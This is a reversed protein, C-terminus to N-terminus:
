KNYKQKLFETVAILNGIVNGYFNLIFEPQDFVLYIRRLMKNKVVDEGKLKVAKMGDKKVIPLGLKKLEECIFGFEFPKSSKDERSQLVKENWEIYYLNIGPGAFNNIFIKKSKIYKEDCIVILDKLKIPQRQKGKTFERRMENFKENFDHKFDRQFSEKVGRNLPETYSQNLGLDESFKGDSADQVFQHFPPYKNPNLIDGAGKGIDEVSNKLFKQWLGRKFGRFVVEGGFFSPGYKDLASLHCDPIDIGTKKYYDDNRETFGVGMYDCYPKEILCLGRTQDYKFPPM